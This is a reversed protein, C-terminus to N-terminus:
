GLTSSTGPLSAMVADIPNGFASQTELEAPNECNEPKTEPFIPLADEVELGASKAQLITLTTPRRTIWFKGQPLGTPQRIEDVISLYLPDGIVPVEGGNWIRGTNMFFQVADEFGPKVTVIVRAMGAQLFSRFLPNLEESLFLDQWRNKNAWYYPYFTYDMITWDFAQEMFKALATYQDLDDGFKMGFSSMTQGDDVSMEKGLANYSQLLYAICNHKLVNSETSRYFIASKEQNDKEKETAATNIEKQAEKFKDYAAQYAEILTNYAKIKWAEYFSSSISCNLILSYTMLGIDWSSNTVSIIDVIEDVGYYDVDFNWDNRYGATSMTKGGIYTNSWMNGFCAKSNGERVRITGKINDLKFNEPLNITFEASHSGRGDNSWQEISKTFSVAKTLEPFNVDLDPYFKLWYKLKDETVDQYTRLVVLEDAARPDIPEKLTAKMSKTALAHLRAPEPIMFEFMMRKGYNFIQNKMKKDVWRYVGSIHKPQIDGGGATATEKGRNDYEHVNTETFEKVIKEVREESVKTLIRELARETIEQSKSVAQRTSDHQASNSASSGGAEFFWTSNVGFRTHAEINRQKELERAVESQMDSRSTKTTDSLQETEESTSTTTTIESYDRTVSSKHRLESAMVNEINSVEGPVYAHVSQEVRLYDAIGLRKVGFHKPQFVAPKDSNAHGTPKDIVLIGTFDVDNVVNSYSVTSECGNDFWIDVKAIGVIGNKSLSINPISVQGNSIQLNNYKQEIPGDSTNLSIKIIAVSWSSDPVTFSFQFRRSTTIDLISKRDVRMVYNSTTMTVNNVIPILAGGLNVYQNQELPKTTLILETNSSVNNRISSLVSQFQSYDPNLKVEVGNVRATEADMVEIAVSEATMSELQNQLVESANTYQELFLALNDNSLKSKLITLDIEPAASFEFQPINLPAITAYAVEKELDTTQPTFNAEVAKIATDYRDLEPKISANYTAYQETYAQNNRTSYGKQLAQVASALSQLDENRELHEAVVSEVSSIKALQNEELGTLVRDSGHLISAEGIRSKNVTFPAINNQTNGHLVLAEPFVISATAAKARFYNGNIKITEETKDLKDSELYHIAKLLQVLVEKIQYDSQTVTQYILNDWLQKKTAIVQDTNQNETKVNWEETARILMDESVVEKRCITTGLNALNPYSAELNLDSRFTETLDFDRAASELKSFKSIGDAWSWAM